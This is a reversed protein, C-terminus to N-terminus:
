SAPGTGDRLWTVVQETHEGLSPPAQTRPALPPNWLAPHRIQRGVGTGEADHVEITPELGLSRAYDIGEDIGAVRGAPVGVRTLREQWEHSPAAALLQELM